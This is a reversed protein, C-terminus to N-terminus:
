VPEPRNLEVAGKLGCSWRGVLVCFRPDIRGHQRWRGIAHECPDFLLAWRLGSSGYPEAHVSAPASVQSWFVSANCVRRAWSRVM